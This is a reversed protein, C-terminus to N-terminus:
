SRVCGFSDTSKLFLCKELSSICIALSCMFLHKSSMKMEVNPFHLDFGCHSVMECGSAHSFCFLGTNTLIHLIQVSTCQQSSELITRGRQSVIQCNRLINFTPNGIRSKQRYGLFHFVLTWIFAQVHFFFFFAQVHINLATNIIWLPGLTSVVCIKWSSYHISFGFTFYWYVPTVNLWLVSNLISLHIFRSFM